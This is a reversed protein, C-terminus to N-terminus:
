LLREALGSGRKCQRQLCIALAPEDSFLSFTKKSRTLGTYLLERSLLRGQSRTEVRPLCLYVHDFESGQSKHITMAYVTEHPPL